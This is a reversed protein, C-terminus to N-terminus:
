TKNPTFHPSCGLLYCRLYSQSVAGFLCPLFTLKYTVKPSPPICAILCINKWFTETLRPSGESTMLFLTVM